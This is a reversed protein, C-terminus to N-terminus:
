PRCGMHDNFDGEKTSVHQPVMPSPQTDLTEKFQQADM